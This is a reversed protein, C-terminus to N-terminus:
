EGTETAPPSPIPRWHTYLNPHYYLGDNTGWMLRGGDWYVVEYWNNVRKNIALFPLGDRPATDIPRWEEAKAKALAAEICRRARSLRDERYTSDVIFDGTPQYWPHPDAAEAGAEVMEDTITITM